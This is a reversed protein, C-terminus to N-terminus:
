LSTLDQARLRLEQDLAQSLDDGLRAYILVGAGILVLAMTVAFAAAVRLRVPIRSMGPVQPSLGRRARDRANAPLLARRDQAAAQAHVCRDRELAGRIRSGM